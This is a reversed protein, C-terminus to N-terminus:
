QPDQPTKAHTPIPRDPHTLRVFLVFEAALNNIKGNLETNQTNIKWKLEVNQSTLARIAEKAEDMEARLACIESSSSSSARVAATAEGIAIVRNSEAVKNNAELTNKEARSKERLWLEYQSQAVYMLVVLSIMGWMLRRWDSDCM